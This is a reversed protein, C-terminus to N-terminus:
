CVEQCNSLTSCMQSTSLNNKRVTPIESRTPSLIRLVSNPIFEFCNKTQLVKTVLSPFSKSDQLELHRIVDWLLPYLFDATIGTTPFQACPFKIDTFIRCVMFVLMQKAVHPNGEGNELQQQFALLQNNFNGFISM